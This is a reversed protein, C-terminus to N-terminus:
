WITGSADGYRKELTAVIMKAAVKDNGMAKLLFAALDKAPLGMDAIEKAITDLSVEAMMQMKHKMVEM